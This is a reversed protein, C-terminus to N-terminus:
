ILYKVNKRAEEIQADTFRIIKSSDKKMQNDAFSYKRNFMEEMEKSALREKTRGSDLFVINKSANQLATYVAKHIQVYMPDIM